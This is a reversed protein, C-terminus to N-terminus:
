HMGQRKNHTANDHLPLTQPIHAHEGKRKYFFAWSRPPQTEWVMEPSPTWLIIRIQRHPPPTKPRNKSLKFVKYIYNFKKPPPQGDNCVM